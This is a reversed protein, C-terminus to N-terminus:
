ARATAGTHHAHGGATMEVRLRGNACSIRHPWFFFAFLPLLGAVGGVEQRGALGPPPVALEAAAAIPPLPGTVTPAGM